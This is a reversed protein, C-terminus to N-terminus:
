PPLVAGSKSKVISVDSSSIGGSVNVDTRFNGAGAANGSQVKTQAVDSGSVSGNGNTDGNLVGMPVLVSGINVGDSVNSLTVGIRQADTVGTLNVTVVNGAVSAAATGAGTSVTAAGVTVPSAFTVVMTHAPGNRPEIGVAGGVGVLPLPVDFDGVGPHTKRSLASSVTPANGGCVSSTLTISDLRSGIAGTPTVSNDSGQRWKFQVNQGAAVAPLNVVVPIFTPATSTGGSLGTWAMRGPLPNSFATSLTSNYGGSAFSGGAALIDNFAGGAISVELVVGDFTSETNFELQFKMQAGATVAVTESTIESLGVNSAESMFVANPASAVFDTVTTPLIGTGSATPTWGAPLAPATVGDFNQSFSTAISGTTFSYIINGYDTAGDTVHLTATVTSGCPLAPNVTFTFSRFAGASGSCLSGYIQPGSPTTVGGSAQLDGTLAGTTCVVGPGGVNKLGLSVTVTEGPDLVGNAGAAVVASGGSTIINTPVNLCLLKQNSTTGAFASSAISRGGVAYLSGNLVAATFRAREATPPAGAMVPNTQWTNTPQDWNIVQTSINATAIGAVYGGALVVDPAYFATAAGWVTAPLDAISADDWTNAVPDYRYTKATAVSTAGDIGGASYIFGGQTWGSVFSETIPYVAGLTWSNLGIDYIELANTSNTAPGTGAWKYIKGSLFVAAHNWTGVTFPALTTYDNTAVNYRYLTTQPTGTGTLAGGLIYCNTGDTVAAPFEVATPLPAIATWTTGDFRFSAATIAGGQVGGFLYMNGGVSVVPSDLVGVPTVPGVSWTCNFLTDPDATKGAPSQAKVFAPPFLLFLLCLLLSAVFCSATSKNM